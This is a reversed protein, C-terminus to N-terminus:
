QPSCPNGHVGRPFSRTRTTVSCCTRSARRLTKSGSIPRGISSMPISWPISTSPPATRTWTRIVISPHGSLSRISPSTFAATWGSEPTSRTSTSSEGIDCSCRSVSTCCSRPVAAAPACGALIRKEGDVVTMATALPLPPTPLDLTVTFRAHASAASPCRTPTSSASTQPNLTGRIIPTDPWGTPNSPMIRGRSAWPTFTMEIPNKTVSSVGTIQRPGISCLAM